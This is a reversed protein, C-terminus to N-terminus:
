IFEQVAQAEGSVILDDIYAMIILNLHGKSDMGSFTCPDSKM